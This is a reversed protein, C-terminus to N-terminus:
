SKKRPQFEAPLEFPSGNALYYLIVPNQTKRIEAQQVEGNLRFTATTKSVCILEPTMTTTKKSGFGAANVRVPQCGASSVM